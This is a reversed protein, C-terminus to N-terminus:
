IIIIIIINEAKLNAAVASNISGRFHVILEFM